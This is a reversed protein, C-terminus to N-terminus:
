ICRHRSVTDLGLNHKDVVAQPWAKVEDETSLYHWTHRGQEDLLRWRTYDTRENDRSGLHGNANGNADGKLHGNPHEDAAKQSLRTQVM